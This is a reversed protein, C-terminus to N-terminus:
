AKLSENVAPNLTHFKKFVTYEKANIGLIIFGVLIVGVEKERLSTKYLLFM